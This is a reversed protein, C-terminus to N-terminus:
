KTTGFVQCYYYRGSKSPGAVGIGIHIFEKGLINAKHGSSKMWQQTVVEEGRMAPNEAVNEALRKWPYSVRGVRTELKQGNVTHSLKDEKSMLVAYDQAAKM